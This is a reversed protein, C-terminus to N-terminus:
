SLIPDGIKNVSNLSPSYYLVIRKNFFIIKTLMIYM